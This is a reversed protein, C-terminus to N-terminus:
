ELKIFTGNFTEEKTVVSILYAGNAKIGNKRFDVEYKDVAHQIPIERITYGNYNRIIVRDGENIRQGPLSIFIKERNPNPYISILKKLPNRTEQIGTIGQGETIKIFQDTTVNTFYEVTDSPWEIMISDIIATNGLGFHARMDNQGCYSSQASIERLQWVVNGNIIAKVRVKAGIASRNSNTGTLSITIWHNANGDNHYLLDPQDFGGFRVTAVALDEFGDNDYDGFACGYSWSSDTAPATNSIRTFTSNGNNLYLLNLHKVVGHFCNTVFLDLDGDNDIDSWASSFSYGNSNSVTDALPTFVFNGDNRFLANDGLDNAMFVDLDGDNDFDAWSSSMTNGGNTLLAGGTLKTLVGGGDNRYINEDENSENTVFLDPDGDLDM